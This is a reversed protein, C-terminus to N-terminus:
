LHVVRKIGLISAAVEVAGDDRLLNWLEDSDWEDTDTWYKESDWDVSLLAGDDLRYLSGVDSEAILAGTFRLEEEGVDLRIEDTDLEALAIESEWARRAIESANLDAAELRKKLDESLYVNVAAAM